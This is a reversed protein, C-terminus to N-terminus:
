GWMQDWIVGKQVRFYYEEKLIMPKIPVNAFKHFLDHVALM